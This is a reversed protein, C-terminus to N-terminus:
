DCSILGMAVRIVMVGFGLVDQKGAPMDIPAFGRGYTKGVVVDIGNPRAVIGGRNLFLLTLPTYAEVGTRSIGM